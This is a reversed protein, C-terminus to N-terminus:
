AQEDPGATGGNGGNTPPETAHKQEIAQRVCEWFQKCEAYSRASCAEGTHPCPFGELYKQSSAM